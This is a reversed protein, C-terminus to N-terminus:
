DRKDNRYFSQHDVVGTAVRKYKPSRNVDDVSGGESVAAGSSQSANGNNEGGKQESGRDEAQGNEEEEQIDWKQAGDREWAELLETGGVSVQRGQTFFINWGRYALFLMYFLLCLPALVFLAGAACMRLLRVSRLSRLLDNDPPLRLLAPLQYLIHQHVPGFLNTPCVLLISPRCCSQSTTTTSSSVSSLHDNVNGEKGKKEGGVVLDNQRRGIWEGTLSVDLHCQQEALVRHCEAIWDFRNVKLRTAAPLEVNMGRAQHRIVVDGASVDSLGMRELLLRLTSWNPRNRSAGGISSGSEIRSSSCGGNSGSSFRSRDSSSGGGSTGDCSSINNSATIKDPSAVKKARFNAQQGRTNGKRRVVDGIQGGGSSSSNEPNGDVVKTNNSNTNSNNHESTRLVQQLTRIIFQADGGLVQNWVHPAEAALVASVLDAGMEEEGGSLWLKWIAFLETPHRFLCTALATLTSASDRALPYLPTRHIIATQILPLFCAFPKKRYKVYPQIHGALILEQEEISSFVKHYDLLGMCLCVLSPRLSTFAEVASAHSYPGPFTSLPLLYIDVPLSSSLSPPSPRNSTGASSLQSNSFNTDDASSTPFHVLLHRIGHQTFLSEDCASKCETILDPCCSVPSTSLCRYSNFLQFLPRHSRRRYYLSSFSVFLSSFSSLSKSAPRLM